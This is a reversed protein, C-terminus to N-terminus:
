LGMFKAAINKMIENTGAFITLIKADRWARVIRCKELTGFDGCLDLARNAVRNLMETTWYKAMSTEIIVDKKEIHDAVLKDVFTRGLKVETAMEVLAFRVAQSKSLPKGSVSTQKCYDMTWELIREAGTVGMIACVLREQQLKDMLMLFGMGKDGLRNKKPIRCKSFFLEATDQSWMGMKELHRGTSFGPTESEVLYLSLAEYPNEVEPDRAAVVVLDANLGNSIFTKSGDIVVEDGEEVATTALSALDSGAGAETMAVATVIDGSVCGPLYKKKLEESGFASIYPVVIDSHLPTALGTIWTKTMEESAIVAYLFDGGMGGYEAPVDMCLFGGQGMKKWASKPVIGDKEWQDAFPTVEKELFTRLRERFLNHEETYNLIEM